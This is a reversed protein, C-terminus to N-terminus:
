SINEEDKMKLSEYQVKLFQLKAIKVKSDGAYINELKDWLEKASKCTLVKALVKKSIGVQLTNLAKVHKFFRKREEVEIPTDKSCNYGKEFLAWVELSISMLYTKMKINWFVHDEGDFIPVSISMNM